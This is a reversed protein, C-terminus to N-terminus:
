APFVSYFVFSSHSHATNAADTPPLLLLKILYYVQKKALRFFLTIQRPIQNFIDTLPLNCSRSLKNVKFEEAAESISFEPDLTWKVPRLPKRKKAALM